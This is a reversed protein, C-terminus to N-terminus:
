RRGEGADKHISITSSCMKCAHMYNYIVRYGKGGCAPCKNGLAECRVCHATGDLDYYMVGGCKMCHTDGSTEQKTIEPTPEGLQELRDALQEKEERHRRNIERLRKNHDRLQENEEFISRSGM